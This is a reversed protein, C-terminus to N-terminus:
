YSKRKDNPRVKTLYYKLEMISGRIDELARHDEPKAFKKNFKGEFVLKWASVDLMRYHLLQNLKPWEIEIFKRDQHISNGALIIKQDAAFNEQCFKLLEAEVETATKTAVSNQQILGDRAEPHADWFKQGLKFRTQVLDPDARVASEYDAIEAFDWDTAIAAVELIKDKGPVLGTMELDVWLLKAQKTM